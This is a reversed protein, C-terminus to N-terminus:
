YPYAISPTFSIKSAANIAFGTIMQGAVSGGLAGAVGGILATAADYPPPVLFLGGEAGAEAGTIGGLGSGGTKIAGSVDGNKLQSAMQIVTAAGAM